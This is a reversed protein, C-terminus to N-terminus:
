KPGILPVYDNEQDPTQDIGIYSNVSTMTTTPTTINKYLDPTPLNTYNTASSM